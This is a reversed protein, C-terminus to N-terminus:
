KQRMLARLENVTSFLTRERIRQRDGPFHFEKVYTKGNLHIGAYVLGVPKDPTGGGPGAVGTVAIGADVNLTACLNRVMTEACEASVAGHTELLDPPVDLLQTKLENSYAIFGGKFVDSAGPFSTFEAAIMGGTCSEAVALTMSNERLERILQEVPSSVGEPLANPTLIKRIEREKMTLATTDDGSLYVRVCAPSACYAISMDTPILSATANEVRSEPMNAVTITKTFRGRFERFGVLYPILHNKVMPNFEGPPGPLMVLLQKPDKATAPKASHRRSDVKILLGPATGIDNPLWEAGEPVLAQNSAISPLKSGRRKWYERLKEMVDENIELSLGLEKAIVQKTLDDLTPGLGGSFIIIDMGTELQRSLEKAIATQTDPITVSIEPSLGIGMLATGLDTLNTNVTFGKLLEDGICVIAIRM